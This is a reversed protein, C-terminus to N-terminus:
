ENFPIFGVKNGIYEVFNKVEDKHSYINFIYEWDKASGNYFAFGDVKEQLIMMNDICELGYDMNTSLIVGPYTEALFKNCLKIEKVRKSKILNKLSVNNIWYGAGAYFQYYREGMTIEENPTLLFPGCMTKNTIILTNYASFYESLNYFYIGCIWMFVSDKSKREDKFNTTGKSHFFFILEDNDNNLVKEYFTISERFQSNLSTTIEIEKTFGLNLIWEVGKKILTTDSLDDVSITFRVKDFLNIFYKLCEHHIKYCINTEIDEGVYLHYILTKKM